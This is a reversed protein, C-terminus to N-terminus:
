PSSTLAAYQWIELKSSNEDSTSVTTTSTSAQLSLGFALMMQRPKTKSCTTTADRVTQGEIISGRATGTM